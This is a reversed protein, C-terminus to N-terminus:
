WSAEFYLLFGYVMRYSNCCSHMVTPHMGGAAAATQQPPTQRLAHQSVGGPGQWGGM